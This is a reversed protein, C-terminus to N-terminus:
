GHGDTKRETQDITDIESRSIVCILKTKKKFRIVIDYRGFYVQKRPLLRTVFTKGHKLM